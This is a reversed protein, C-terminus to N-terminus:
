LPLSPRCRVAAHIATSASGSGSGDWRAALGCESENRGKQRRRDTRVAGVLAAAATAAPVAFGRQGRHLAGVPRHHLGTCLQRWLPSDPSCNKWRLHPLESCSPTPAAHPAGPRWRFWPLCMHQGTAPFSQRLSRWSPAAPQAGAQRGDPLGAQSLAQVTRTGTITHGRGGFVFGAGHLEGAAFRQLRHTSVPPHLQTRCCRPKAGQRPCM